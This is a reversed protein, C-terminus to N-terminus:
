FSNDAQNRPDHFREKLAYIRSCQEHLNYGHFMLAPERNKRQLSRAGPRDDIFMNIGM